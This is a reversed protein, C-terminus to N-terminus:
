CPLLMRGISDVAYWYVDNYHGNFGVSNGNCGNFVYFLTEITEITNPYNVLLDFKFGSQM